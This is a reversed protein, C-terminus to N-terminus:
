INTLIGIGDGFTFSESDDGFRDGRSLVAFDYFKESNERRALLIRSSLCSTAPFSCTGLHSSDSPAVWAGLRCFVV